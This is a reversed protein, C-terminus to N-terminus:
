SEIGRPESIWGRARATNLLRERLAQRGRHVRSKITGVPVGLVQAASAQDLQEVDVLLVTWRMDEALGNIADIMQEDDFRNLLSAPDDTAWAHDTPASAPAPPDIAREGDNLSLTTPQRTSARVADIHTRRLITMLWARADTGDKFSDIHRMAKIATEQALDEAEQEHRTLYQATRLLAPLLPWVIQRARQQQPETLQIKAVVEDM